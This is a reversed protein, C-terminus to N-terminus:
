IKFKIFFYRFVRHLIWAVSMGVIAGVLVDSPWHVGVFVRSIAILISSFFFFEGLRRSYAYVIVSLAFYFSAHGSPFSSASSAQEILPIFNLSVFPRIRPWLFYFFEVIVIRVLFVTVFAEVAMKWSRTLNSILFLGLFFLLIFGLYDACFIAVYDLFKYQGVAERIFDFVLLDINM